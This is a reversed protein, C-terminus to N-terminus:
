GEWCLKWRPKPLTSEMWSEWRRVLLASSNGIGTIGIEYLTIVSHSLVQGGCAQNSLVPLTLSCSVPSLVGLPLKLCLPPVTNLTM